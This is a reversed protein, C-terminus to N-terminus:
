PIPAHQDSRAEDANRGVTSLPGDIATFLDDVSSMEVHASEYLDLTNDNLTVAIVRVQPVQRVVREILGCDKCDVIIVDPQWEAM